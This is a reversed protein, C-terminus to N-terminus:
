QEERAHAPRHQYWAAVAVLVTGLGITSLVRYTLELSGLDVIGVKALAIAFL